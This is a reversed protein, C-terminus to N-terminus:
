TSRVAALYAEFPQSPDLAEAVAVLWAAHLLAADASMTVPPMMVTVQGGRCGVAHWNATETGHDAPEHLPESM